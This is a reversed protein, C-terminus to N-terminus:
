YVWVDITSGFLFDLRMVFAENHSADKYTWLRFNPNDNGPVSFPGRIQTVDLGQIECFREIMGLAMAESHSKRYQCISIDLVILFCCALAAFRLANKM